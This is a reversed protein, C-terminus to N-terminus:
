LTWQYNLLSFDVLDVKGDQNLDYLLSTNGKLFAARMFAFDIFNVQIDQTFDAGTGLIFRRETGLTQVQIIGSYGCETSEVACSVYIQDYLFQQSLDFDLSFSGNEDVDITKITELTQDEGKVGYVQLQSGPIALGEIEGTEDIYVIPPLLVYSIFLPSENQVTYSYTVLSTKNGLYDEALFSFNNEGMPVHSSSGEFYGEEDAVLTSTQGNLTFTVQANPFAYGGFRVTTEPAAPTTKTTVETGTQSTSSESNTEGTSSQETSTSGDEATEDSDTAVMGGGQSGQTSNPPRGGGAGGGSSSTGEDSNSDPVVATIYVDNSSQLVSALFYAPPLALLLAMSLTGFVIKKNLKKLQM